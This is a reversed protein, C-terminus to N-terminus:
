FFNMNLKQIGRLTSFARNTIHHCGSIDLKEININKLNDFAKDTISPNCSMKIKIVKSNILYESAKDTMRIIYASKANPFSTVWQNMFDAKIPTDYDNWCYIKVTDLFEKSVSRLKSAEKTTFFPLFNKFISSLVTTGQENSIFQM